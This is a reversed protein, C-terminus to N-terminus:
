EDLHRLPSLYGPTPRFFAVEFAKARHELERHELLWSLTIPEITLSLKSAYHLLRFWLVTRRTLAQGLAIPEEAFDFRVARLVRRLLDRQGNQPDFFAGTRLDVAVANGTFDFQNLVDIIDECPWLGDDFRAIPVLDCHVPGEVPQWRPSGFPTSWMRGYRELMTLAEEVVEGGGLFFDFDHPSHKRGLISDRVVGGALYIELEALSAIVESLARYGPWAELSAIVPQVISATDLM